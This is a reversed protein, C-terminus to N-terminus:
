FSYSIKLDEESPPDLPIVVVKVDPIEYLQKGFIVIIVPIKAM